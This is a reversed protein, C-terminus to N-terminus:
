NLADTLRYLRELVRAADTGEALVPRNEAQSHVVPVFEVGRVGDRDLTVLFIVSLLSPLGPQARDADDVDFIFNGLSYIIVGRGYYEVGQLVHPHGGLVLAAGADIAARAVSRQIQNPSETYEFGAHMSLVVVDAAARAAWVDQAVQEPECWAVGPRSPGAAMQARGYGSGSDDPVAVCALFAIRLGHVEAVVPRRAEAESMGAGVPLIGQARLAAAGDTIGAVGYDLAHNNALALVDFGAAALSAAYSPPARFVYDKNAPSGGDTLAVELNGFAVDARQLVPAVHAYPYATGHREMAQGITRGLMVDGVAALTVRAPEAPRHERLAAALDAATGGDAGDRRVVARRLVLPYGEAGPARGDVRLAKARLYPGDWPVVGLAAARSSVAALIEAAPATRVAAEPWLLRAAAADWVQVAAPGGLARVTGGAVAAAVEAATLEELRLTLPAVVAVPDQRFVPADGGEGPGLWTLALDAEGREVAARAAAPDEVALVELGSLAPRYEELWAQPVAATLPGSPEAAERDADCAAAAPWLALALILIPFARWRAALSRGRRPM